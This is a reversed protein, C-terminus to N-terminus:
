LIIVYATIIALVANLLWGMTYIITRPGAAVKGFGGYYVVWYLMRVLIHLGVLWNVWNAPVGALVALLASAILISFNENSNGYTRIIRFSSDKHSGKLPQGPVEDSRALGLAGALFGAHAGHYLAVGVSGFSGFSTSVGFNTSILKSNLGHFEGEIFHELCGRGRM